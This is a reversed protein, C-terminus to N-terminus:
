ALRKGQRYHEPSLRKISDFASKYALVEWLWAEQIEYQPNYLIWVLYDWEYNTAKPVWTVVSGPKGSPRNGKIQYRAGNFIFDYGKQVSTMGQMTVSYEEMSCGVLQAADYESLASTISPANGFAKEWALVTEILHQRLSETVLM